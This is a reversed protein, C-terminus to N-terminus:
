WWGSLLLLWLFFFDICRKSVPSCGLCYSLRQLVALYTEHWSVISFEGSISHAMGMEWTQHIFQLWFLKLSKSAPAGLFVCPLYFSNQKALDSHLSISLCEEFVWISMLPPSFINLSFSLRKSYKYWSMDFSSAPLFWYHIVLDLCEDRFSSKSFAKLHVLCCFEILKWAPNLRSERCKEIM